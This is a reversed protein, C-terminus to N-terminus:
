LTGLRDLPWIRIVAKGVIHSEPVPGFVRSDSSASRNDGMLFVHGDPITIPGYDPMFTGDPLYPEDIAVDDVYVRGDQIELRDGGVAVVRKILDDSPSTRIGLAELVARVVKEPVSTDEEEAWPNLFVVVDGPSPDSLRYNLKSVMVRDDIMLTPIMSGSPIYFPQIIFTKILVAVVLAALLLGPLESLFSRREEPEPTEDVAPQDPTVSSV